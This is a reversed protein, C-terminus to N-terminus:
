CRIAASRNRGIRHWALLGFALIGLLFSSPEPIATLSFNALEPTLGPTASVLGVRLYGFGGNSWTGTTFDIAHSVNLISAGTGDPPASTSWFLQVNTSTLELRYYQPETEFKWTANSSSTFITSNNVVARFNGTANNAPTGQAIYLGTSDVPATTATAGAPLVGFRIQSNQADLAGTNALTFSLVIPASSVSTPVFVSDRTTANPSSLYSMVGGGTQIGTASVGAGTFWNTNGTGDNLTTDTVSFNDTISTVVAAQLGLPLFAM